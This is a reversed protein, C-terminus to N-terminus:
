QNHLRDSKCTNYCVKRLGYCLVARLRDYVHDGVRHIRCYRDKRLCHFSSSGVVLAFQHTDCRQVTHAAVSKHGLQLLEIHLKYIHRNNTTMRAYSNQREKRLHTQKPASVWFGAAKLNTQRLRMLTGGNGQVKLKQSCLM